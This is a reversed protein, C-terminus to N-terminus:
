RVLTFNVDMGAGLSEPPAEVSGARDIGQLVYRDLRADGSSRILSRELIKGKEDCKLHVTAQYTGPKTEKPIYISNRLAHRIRSIYAAHGKNEVRRPAASDAATSNGNQKTAERSGYIAVLIETPAGYPPDGFAGVKKAANCIIQANGRISSCRLYNGEGDLSIRAELRQGVPVSVLPLIKQLAAGAYGDDIVAAAQPEAGNAALPALALFPLPALLSSFRM